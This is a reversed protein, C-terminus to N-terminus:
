CWVDQGQGRQGRGEGGARVHLFEAAFYNSVIKIFNNTISRVAVLIVKMQDQDCGQRGVQVEVFASGNNGIDINSIISLEELQLCVWAQKEGEEKCKWKGNTLLNSAPFLPDESSFGVIKKFKLPAM